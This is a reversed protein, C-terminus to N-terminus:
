VYKGEKVLKDFKTLHKALEKEKRVKLADLKKDAWSRARDQGATSKASDLKAALTENIEDALQDYKESVLASIERRDADIQRKRAEKEAKVLQDGLERMKLVEPGNPDEALEAADRAELFQVTLDRTAQSFM